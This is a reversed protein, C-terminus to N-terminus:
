KEEKILSGIYVTTENKITIIGDNQYKEFYENWANLYECFLPSNKEIAHSASLTRGIFQEKTEILDNDYKIKEYKGDFFMSIGEDREDWSCNYSDTFQRYKEVIKKREKELECDTKKNWVLIVGNNKKLVRLCEKKFLIPNFWHFAQGVFIADISNDKIGILNEAKGDKIVINDNLLYQKLQERMKENPEVAIVCAHTEVLMKTLIGTGAGVDLVLQKENLIGRKIMEDIFGQAYSPRYKSYLDAKNTFINWNEM